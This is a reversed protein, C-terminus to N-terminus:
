PELRRRLDLYTLGHKEALSAAYARGDAPRREVRYTRITPDQPAVAAVMSVSEPGLRSLEDLFTVCVAVMRRAVVAELVERGVLLADAATTSSFSENLVLVSRRTAADLIERLQILEDRLRGREDAHQEGTAFHTFVRDHLGMHASRAPVPLGLLALYHLQGFARAFTTKGGQNPGTVVLIREPGSLAVDNPVIRRASEASRLALALDFVGEAGEESAEPDVEPYCFQLGTSAVRETLELYGLFFQVERDFRAVVPDVWDAWRASFGRLREFAEPYLLAVRDVILEEVPSLEPPDVKPFDHDRGASERFRRFTASVEASLDVEGRFSAVEVRLGQVRVVFEVRRMAADLEEAETRLRVFSGSELHRRLFSRIAQLGRSAPDTAGLDATLGTVCEVYALAAELRLRAQQLPHHRKEARALTRRMERLGEAFAVVVRRLDPRQLDRAVEQRFRITDADPSLAAFLPALRYTARDRTAAEVVQDLCLDALARDSAAEDSPLEPPEGPFLVSVPSPASVSTQPAGLRPPTPIGLTGEIRRRLSRRRAGPSSGRGLVQPATM